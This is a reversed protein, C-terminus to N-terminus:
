REALTGTRLGDHDRGTLAVYLRAVFAYSLVSFVTSVAAVAIGGVFQATAISDAGLLLRAVLGFVAQAALTSVVLVVGYLLVAGVLRWGLGRTMRFAHGISRLGLREHLVTPVLPLLRAFVWLLLLFFAAMYLFGLVATGGSVTPTQGPTMQSFDVGALALLLIFPLGLLTLAFGLVLCIGVLPLLRATAARAADARTTNPDSTIATIALAGWFTVVLIAISLLGFLLGTGTTVFAAPTTRYAQTAAQVVNPVFLAGIAIPAILGARGRVAELASDWVTGIRTM